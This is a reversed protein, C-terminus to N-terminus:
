FFSYKVVMVIEELKELETPTVSLNFVTDLKIDENNGRCLNWEDIRTLNTAEDDINISYSNPNEKVQAIFMVNEITADADILQAMYPLRSKDIKLDISGNQKFLYWENSLDHKLSLAIHLGTENLEQEIEM